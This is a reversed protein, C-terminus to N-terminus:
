KIQLQFYTKNLVYHGDLMCIQCQNSLASIEAAYNLIPGVKNDLPMVLSLGLKPHNKLLTTFGLKKFKKVEM